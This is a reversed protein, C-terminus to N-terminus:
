KISIKGLRISAKALTSLKNERFGLFYLENQTAFGHRIMGVPQDNNSFVKERIVSGDETDLTLSFCKSKEYNSVIKVRDGNQTVEANKIHDNIYYILKGPQHIYNFSGFNPKGSGPAIFNVNTSYDFPSVKELDSDYSNHIEAQVKPVIKMFGIKGDNKIKLMLLNGCLYTYLIKKEYRDRPLNSEVYTFYSSNVITFKEATIIISNDNGEDVKRFIYDVSIETEKEPEKDRKTKSNADEEGESEFDKLITADFTEVGTLMLSGNKPDFKNVLIGEVKKTRADYSFFGCVFILGNKCCVVKARKLLKGETQTPFEMEKGGTLNYMEISVKKFFFVKEKKKIQEEEYVNGTVIIKQDPTLIIDEPAFLPGPVDIDISTVSKQNLLEDIIAVKLKSKEDNSIDATVVMVSSDVSPAIKVDYYFDKKGQPLRIIEKWVGNLNGTNKDIESAYCVMENTPKNYTDTFIFLKNKFAMLRNIEKGKLDKKYNVEYVKNLSKDFKILTANGTEGFIYYREKADQIYVGSEDATIIKVRDPDNKIKLDEGWVVTSVQGYSIISFLLHILLLNSQKM